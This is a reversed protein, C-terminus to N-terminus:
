WWGGHVSAGRPMRLHGVERAHLAWALGGGSIKARPEAAASTDERWVLGCEHGRYRRVRVQLTTPRWGMPMHALRRVLSDRVKGQCGCRRCWDDTKVARCDLTAGHPRVHQGVVVLGLEDVRA